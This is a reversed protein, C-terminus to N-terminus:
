FTIDKSKIKRDVYEEILTKILVVVPVGIFMGVLGFLSGGLSVSVIIWFAGVGVRDGLIKPGLILGDFQQLAVIIGIVIFVQMLNGSALTVIIAPVAGIFPGFYPIINAIGIIFGIAPANPIGFLLMVIFCIVGIIASNIIKGIFFSSFIEDSKHVIYLLNDATTKDNFAYNLKKIRMMLDEKDALMYLSIVFAMFLNLLGSSTSLVFSLLGNVFVTSLEGAKLLIDKLSDNMYTIIETVYKNNQNGLLEEFFQVNLKGETYNSIKAILDLASNRISPILVAGFVILCGILVFVSLLIAYARKLKGKSVKLIGKVLSELMYAIVFGVIVPSLAANIVTFLDYKTIIFNFLVAGLVLVVAFNRTSLKKM